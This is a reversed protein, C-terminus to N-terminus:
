QLHEAVAPAGPARLGEAPLALMAVVAPVDNWMLVDIISLGRQFKGGGQSYEPLHPVQFHLEVGHAAFSAADYLGRGGPLNWYQRADERACIDLVRESGHLTHNAYAASTWVFATTLGLYSAVASVSRKALEGIRESEGALVDSVLQFVPEFCPAKAYSQRISELMKRRWHAVPQMCVQSISVFPSAGALPVTIYRVEGCLLLRNRNIWGNKIFNVDDYFVFRDVRALLQFYGLYPFFYPQMIALRM